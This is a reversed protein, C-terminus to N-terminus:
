TREETQSLFACISESTDRLIYPLELDADDRLQDEIEFSFVWDLHKIIVLLKDREERLKEIEVDKAAIKRDHDAREMLESSRWGSIKRAWICDKSTQENYFVTYDPAGDSNRINVWVPQMATEAPPNTHTTM